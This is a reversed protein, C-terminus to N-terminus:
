ILIFGPMVPVMGKNVPASKVFTLKAFRIIDYASKVLAMMIPVSQVPALTNPTIKSPAVKVLAWILVISHLIALTLPISCATLQTPVFKVLAVSVPSWAFGYIGTLQEFASNVPALKDLASIFRIFRVPAVSIFALKIPAFIPPLSRVVALKVM